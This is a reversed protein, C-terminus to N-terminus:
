LIKKSFATIYDFNLHFAKSAMYWLQTPHPKLLFVYNSIVLHKMSPINILDSGGNGILLDNGQLDRVLVSYISQFCSWDTDCFQGVSFLTTISVKPSTFEKQDHHKGQFHIPHTTCDALSTSSSPVCSLNSGLTNTLKLVNTIRSTNDVAFSVRKPVSENRVKPVWKKQIKPVWKKQTKPVWKYTSPCQQAIWWKWAKSTKKYLMRYYSKSSTITSNRICSTKKQPTAVSKIASKQNEKDKMQNSRSQPRSVNTNHAVGISARPNINRVTQNLQSALMCQQRLYIQLTVPPSLVWQRMTKQVSKKTAFYKRELSDSFSASKGLVSPKPIRQANLQRVVSPKDFKTGISKGKCKEILKKWSLQNWTRSASSSEFLILKNLFSKHLVTVNWSKIFIYANYNLSMEYTPFAAKDSKLNMLNMELSEVYKLDAHMEQKLEHIFALSDNQTKLALPMLCKKVLIEM